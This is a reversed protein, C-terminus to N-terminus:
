QATVAAAMALAPVTALDFRPRGSREKRTQPRRPAPSGCLVVVAAGVVVCAVALPARRLQGAAGLLEAITLLAGLALVAEALRAPAGQWHPVLVGRAAWAGAALPATFLVLLAVGTAYQAPSMPRPSASWLGGYSKRGHRPAEVEDAEGNQGGDDNGHERGGDRPPSAQEGPPGTGGRPDHVGHEGESSDDDDTFQQARDALKSEPRLRSCARQHAEDCEDRRSSYTRRIS